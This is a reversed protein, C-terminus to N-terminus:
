CLIDQLYLVVAPQVAQVAFQCLLLVMVLAAMGPIAGIMRLRAGLTTKAHADKSPVFTEPVSWWCLLGTALSLAGGLFFPLRYSHTLDALAGGFVPGVLSGVLQGSGM